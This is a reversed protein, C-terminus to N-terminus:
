LWRIVNDDAPLPAVQREVVLGFRSSKDKEGRESETVGPWDCLSLFLYIPSM